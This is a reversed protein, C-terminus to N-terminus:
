LLVESPNINVALTAKPQLCTEIYKHIEEKANSHITINFQNNIHYDEQGKLDQLPM